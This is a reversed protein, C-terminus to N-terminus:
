RNVCIVVWNWLNKNRNYDFVLLCNVNEGDKVNYLGVVSPSIFVSDNGHHLFAYPWDTKKRIVGEVRKAYNLDDPLGCKNAKLIREKGSSEIVYNLKLITGAEVRFRLNQIMRKKYGYIITAKHSGSDVYTVVAVSEETKLGLIENTITMYDLPAHDSSRATNIWPQHIWCEIENPLHWGQSLYCQTVRDIQYKALDLQNRQIYLNALKIRVKGLFNEQTRCHVARILCSLQKDQDYTFVDSLLQWVWFESSKRRAFPVIVRLADDPTSGLSLLLKGYFYGPYTMEPHSIMLTDMQPLFEEICGLDNLRLLAKSKAIYAKEAISMITRGEDTVIPNYDNEMLNELKWWDFFDLLEPWVDCRIFGELLASYGRGPAFSYDRFKSFLVSLKAPTDFATPVLHMKAFYGIWFISYVLPNDDLSVSLLEDIHLVLQNYLGSRADSKIQYQLARSMTNKAWPKGQVLDIRALDYAEQLQGAECLNIIENLGAM